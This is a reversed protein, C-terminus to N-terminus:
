SSEEDGKRRKGRSSGKLREINGRLRIGEKKREKVHKREAETERRERRQQLHEHLLGHTKERGRM